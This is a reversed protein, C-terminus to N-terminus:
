EDVVEIKFNKAYTIDSLVQTKFKGKEKGALDDLFGNFVIRAEGSEDLASVNVIKGLWLKESVNETEAEFLCKSSNIRSVKINSLKVSEVQITLEHYRYETVDDGSLLIVEDGSGVSVVPSEGSVDGLWSDFLVGLWGNSGFELIIGTLIVVLVLGIWFVLWKNVKGLM